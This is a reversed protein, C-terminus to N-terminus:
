YVWIELTVGQARRLRAVSIHSHESGGLLLYTTVSGDDLGVRLHTSIVQAPRHAKLVKTSPERGSEGLCEVALLALGETCEPDLMLGDALQSRGPSSSFLLEAVCAAFKYFVVCMGDHFGLYAANIKLFKFPEMKRTTMTNLLQGFTTGPQLQFTRIFFTSWSPVVRSRVKIDFVGPVPAGESPQLIFRGDSSHISIASEGDRAKAV